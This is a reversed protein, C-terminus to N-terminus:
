TLAYHLLVALLYIFKMSFIGCWRGLKVNLVCRIAFNSKLLSRDIVSEGSHSFLTSVSQYLYLSRCSLSCVSHFHIFVLLDIHPNPPWARIHGHFPSSLCGTLDGEHLIWCLRFRQPIRLVLLILIQQRSYYSEYLETPFRPRFVLVAELRCLQPILVVRNALHVTPLLM